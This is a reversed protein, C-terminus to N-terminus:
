LRVRVENVRQDLWALATGPKPSPKQPLVLAGGSGSTITLPMDSITFNTTSYTAGGFLQTGLSGLVGGLGNGYSYSNMQQQMFQNMRRQNM